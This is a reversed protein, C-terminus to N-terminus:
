RDEDVVIEMTRYKKGCELCIKNIYLNNDEKTVTVMSSSTKESGCKPCIWGPKYTEEMVSTINDEIIQSATKAVNM